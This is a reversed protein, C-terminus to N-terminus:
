CDPCLENLLFMGLVLGGFIMTPITVLLLLLGYKVRNIMSMYTLCTGVFGISVQFFPVFKPIEGFYFCWLPLQVIVLFINSRFLISSIHEHFRLKRYLIMVVIAPVILLIIWPYNVFILVLFKEM